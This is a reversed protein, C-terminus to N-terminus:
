ITSKLKQMQAVSQAISSQLIREKYMLYFQRMYALNRRAFGRGFEATLKKSLTQLHREAYGARIKGHQENEVILRGVQYNTWVQVFDASKAVATRANVILTRIQSLLGSVSSKTM